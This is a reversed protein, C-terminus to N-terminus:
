KKNALLRQRHAEIPSINEKPEDAKNDIQIFEPNLKDGTFLTNKLATFENNFKATLEVTVKETVEKEVVEKSENVAQTVAEGKAKEFENLKAELEAIKENAIEIESKAPAPEVPAPAPENNTFLTKMKAEFGEFLATIKSEITQMANNPKTVHAAIKYIRTASINTTIVEDIFGLQLAEDSTLTQAQNMKGKITEAGLGTVANYFNILKDEAKKLDEALNALEDAEMPDPSQPTWAPNHIFYDSNQYM